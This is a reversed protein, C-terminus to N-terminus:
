VNKQQAYDVHRIRHSFLFFAIIDEGCNNKLM